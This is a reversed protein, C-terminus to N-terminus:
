ADEGERRARYARRLAILLQPSLDKVGIFAASGEMDPNM